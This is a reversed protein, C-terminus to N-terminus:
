LKAAANRCPEVYRAPVNGGAATLAKLAPRIYSAADAKRGEGLLAMGVRCRATETAFHGAPLANALHNLAVRAEKEADSWRHQALRMEARTLAPFARRPHGSPLYAAFISEALALPQEAQAYDGNQVLAVGLNQAVEGRQLGKPLAAMISRYEQAAGAHDGMESLVIALNNRHALLTEGDERGSAMEIAIAQRHAAAAAAHHGAQEEIRGLDSLPMTMRPHREGYNERVLKLAKDVETRARDLDGMQAYSRALGSRIEIEAGPERLTNAIVLARELLAAQQQWEGERAWTVSLLTDLTEPVPLPDDGLLALAADTLAPIADGEGYRHLMHARYALASAERLTGKIPPASAFALEEKSLELVKDGDGAREHARATWNILDALMEPDDKLSKRADALAEDLMAAAAAPDLGLSDPELLDARRFLEMLVEKGRRERDAAAIAANRERSIAASSLTATVGWGVSGVLVLAALAAALRNHRVTRRVAQMRTDPMAAIPTDAVLARLDAALSDMSTYRDQPETATAKAIVAALARDQREHPVLQAAILGIQYIDSATSLSQGALQEPSAYDPTFGLSAPVVAKKGDAQDERAQEDLAQAIGFDLLRLSGNTAVLIHEAKLDGHVVMRAHAASVIDAADALLALRQNTGLANLECYQDIALGEALEMALWPAGTSTEGADIIRVIGPHDFNALLRRERLFLERAAPGVIGNRLIKLAARQDYRGDARCVEYVEALGGSGRHAIVKWPGYSRGVRPDSPQGDEGDELLDSLAAIRQSELRAFLDRSHGEMRLLRTLKGLMKPRDAFEGALWADREDLPLEFLRDLAADLEAQEHKPAIPEPM